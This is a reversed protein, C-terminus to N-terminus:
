LKVREHSLLPYELFKPLVQIRRREKKELIKFSSKTPHVMDKGTGSIIAISIQGLTHIVNFKM